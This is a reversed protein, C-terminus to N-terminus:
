RCAGDLVARVTAALDEPRYPKGVFGLTPETAVEPISEAAYGSAFLVRVDPNVQTLQRFADRGSLRPMTLDLIVLAIRERERRYVDVAELGDGALLVQYGCDELIKRAVQRIQPEDDVLLITETGGAPAPPAAVTLAAPPDARPLYIDFRTGHDVASTCEIWGQHQKVIGFVMALGLGTGRGPGKTTFFPEFIRSQVVPDMGHGTDEVRLRIFPGPRAEVHRHAAPADIVVNATELLLQGGEPMADRANVCLNMLVQHLQGPDASVMGLDSAPRVEVVIRPDITRRLLAVTEDLLSHLQLPQPRLLTQRAFGLLQNTLTAARMAANEAAETLERHPDGAPLKLTLLSVNGLIVTLLNNFDHAIGGALRGIAEMKGAQRLQDELQRQETIDTATGTAGLVRGDDARLVIANFRLQVPTGDKRLHVTEYHFHPEGALIREFVQLERAVQEPPLFDVFPRGLMEEPAYGYIRWAARRNVFTWRGAADVSWILDSSTEVLDRYHKESAQLNAEARKRDIIERQLATNATQLELTRDRVRNELERHVQHLEAEARKRATIDQVGGLLRVVRRSEADWEPRAHDRLWRVAGAATRIRYELVGPQNAALDRIFQRVRPLDDPHIVGLWGGRAEIAELTYGVIPQFAETVWETHLTDDAELRASYVYDSTLESILRYRRESDRLAAEMKWGRALEQVLQENTRDLAATRERVLQELHERHQQLEAEAQKRETIDIHAGLIGRITSGDRIPAVVYFYSRTEGSWTFLAEGQVVEGALARHHNAKVLALTDSPTEFDEPRRGRCDGWHRLCAANQLVYRGDPDCAWCDFPLNDVLARWRAESDRLALETRQRKWVDRQLLGFLLAVLFAQLAAFVALTNLMQWKRALDESLFTMRLRANQMAAALQKRAVNMERYFKVELSPRDAPVTRVLRRHLEDLRQVSEDIQQLAPPLYPAGADLGDLDTVRAQYDAYLQQWRAQALLVEAPLPNEPLGQELNQLSMTLQTMRQVLTVNQTVEARDRAESLMLWSNGAIFLLAILLTGGTWIPSTLRLRM